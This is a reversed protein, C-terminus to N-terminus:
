LNAVYDSKKLDDQFIVKQACFYATQMYNFLSYLYKSFLFVLRTQFLAYSVM